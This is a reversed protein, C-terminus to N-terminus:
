LGWNSVLIMLDRIDVISDCNLDGDYITVIDSLRSRYVVAKDVDGSFSREGANFCGVMVDYSNGFGGTTNDSAMGAMRGDLILYVMGDEADRAAIVEHWQGDSVSTDGTVSASSSGDDLFFRVKGDQIRLWWSSIGTGADKAVLAGSGTVGGEAHDETKFVVRILFSDESGFDLLERSQSDTLRIGKGSGTFRIASGGGYNSSGEVVEFASEATGHMGYGRDDQVAGATTPVTTGVTLDEFNWYVICKEKVWAPTFRAFTIRHYPWGDGNEYLLGIQGDAMSALSSYASSGKYILKADEFVQGNSHSIQVTMNIRTTAAPNSFVLMEEGSEPFLHSIASAQCVPCILDDRVQLSTWNAGQNYSYCVVRRNYQKYSGTPRDNRMLTGYDLEVVTAENTGSPLYASESWTAGHDDSHINRGIAPVILRGAHSSSKLQIGNGPGTADWRTDPPQVESFRNVPTTWTAGHDDSYCSWITRVGDSTGSTIEELTDQGLNHTLFLWIRGNSQDVLPTPNGCTNGEDSWVVQMAGWTVGGDTSRRLVTDIDGTDSSSNKRGESFALLTGESAQILAPIRYTHYGNMGQQYLVVEFLPDAQLLSSFGFVFFGLLIIRHYRMFVKKVLYLYFVPYPVADTGGKEM